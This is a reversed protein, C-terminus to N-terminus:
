IARLKDLMAKFEPTDAAGSMVHYPDVEGKGDVWRYILQSSRVNDEYDRILDDDSDALTLDGEFLHWRIDEALENIKETYDLATLEYKDLLYLTISRADDQYVDIITKDSELYILSSDERAIAKAEEPTLDDRGGEIPDGYKSLRLDHEEAYAIATWGTLKTM